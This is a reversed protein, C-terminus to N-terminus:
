AFQAGAPVAPTAGAAKEIQAVCGAFAQMYRAHDRRFADGNRLEALTRGDLDPLRRFKAFVTRGQMVFAERVRLDNDAVLIAIIGRGFRAPAAGTGVFGDQWRTTVAGLVRRYHSMQLVTGVIQVGWLLGIALLAWQWNITMADGERQPRNEVDPMAVPM